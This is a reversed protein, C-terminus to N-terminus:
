ATRNSYKMNRNDSLEVMSILIMEKNTAEILQYTFVNKELTIAKKHTSM